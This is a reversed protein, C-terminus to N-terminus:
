FSPCEDVGYSLWISLIVFTLIILGSHVLFLVVSGWAERKGNGSGGGYTESPHFHADNTGRQEGDDDSSNNNNNNNNTPYSSDWSETKGEEYIDGVGDKTFGKKNSSAAAVTSMGCLCLCVVSLGVM